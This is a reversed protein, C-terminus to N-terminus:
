QGGRGFTQEVQRGCDTGNVAFPQASQSICFVGLLDPGVIGMFVWGFGKSRIVIKSRVVKLGGGAPVLDSAIVIDDPSLEVGHSKWVNGIGRRLGTEYATIHDPQMQAIPIPLESAAGMKQEQVVIGNTGQALAGGPVALALGLLLKFARGVMM